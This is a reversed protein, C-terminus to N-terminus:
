NRLTCKEKLDQNNFYGKKVDGSWFSLGFSTTILLVLVHALKSSNAYRKHVKGFESGQLKAGGIQVKALLEKETRRRGYIGENKRICVWKSTVIM